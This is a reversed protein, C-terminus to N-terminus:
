FKRETHSIPLVVKFYGWDITGPCGISEAFNFGDGDLRIIKNGLRMQDFFRHGEGVLEKRREIQVLDDTAVVDAVSPNARKRIINLYNSAMTVGGKGKLAAEAAILYAEALRFIKPNNYRFNTGGNGPFKAFWPSSTDYQSDYRVFQARIDGPESNILNVWSTTPILTAGASPAGHWLNHWYSVYGGDADIGSQASVFLELITEAAGEEKWYNVYQDRSVLQYPSQDIVEKAADYAKDWDGKYLNVRAQLMKAAWYNFHGTNRLKSLLPLAKDLDELVLKYTDAVTSRPKQDSPGLLETILVAGLSAGQDKM